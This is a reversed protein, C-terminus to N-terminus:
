GYQIVDEMNGQQADLDVYRRERSQQMGGFVGFPLSSPNVPGSASSPASGSQRRHPTSSTRPEEDAITLKFPDRVYNNFFEVDREFKSLVDAHKNRIHKRVFEDGKFLKTCDGVKCRFKQEDVRVMHRDLFTETERTMDILFLQLYIVYMDIPKYGLKRLTTYEVGKLVLNSLDDIRQAWRHGLIQDVCTLGM